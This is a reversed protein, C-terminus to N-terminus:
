ASEKLWRGLRPPKKLRKNPPGYLRRYVRLLQCRQGQEAALEIPARRWVACGMGSTPTVILKRESRAVHDVFAESDAHPGHTNADLM